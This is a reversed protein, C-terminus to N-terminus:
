RGLDWGGPGAVSDRGRAAREASREGREPRNRALEAELQSKRAELVEVDSQAAREAAAAHELIRRRSPLWGVRKEAQCTRDEVARELRWRAQALDSSVRGLELRMEGREPGSDLALPRAGSRRLAQAVRDVASVRYEAPERPAYEERDIASEEALYLFNAERGRTLATYGWERTLGPGALVYARRLTSGQAVHGTIAYGHQMTPQGHEGRAYLFGPSLLIPRSDCEIEVHNSLPDVSTVIGRDGNNVRLRNDNRRIVIHDGTAFAGGPLQIDVVSLRGAARMHERARANLADVDSRRAAIMLSDHIDGNAWWDAVLHARAREITEATRLRGHRRYLDLASEPRGERIHAVAEREWAQVQRRNERLEVGIGRQVLGRFVGGAELEPLQHHDGVLVLKGSAAEVHHLLLALQRTSVQGAEDIVLVCREPLRGGDRLRQSMAAVSTSPITSGRELERAARRAVAVGLVPLGTADWAEHAAALAFTKGSGAKGVVVAVADGGRTLHEVMERQEASLEPRAAIAAAVRADDAVGAGAARGALVREIVRQEVALHSITSYRRQEAAVPMAGGDRRRWADRELELDAGVVPVVDASALLRDAASELTRARVFAGPPMHECLRVVVDRRTVTPEKHTLGEPGVLGQFIRRWSIDPAAVERGLAAVLDEPEFGGTRARSWWESQLRGADIRPGKRRRTDLAAAEAARPGTVGRDALAREIEVRRRSFERLVRPPLGAIEAIGDRVTTWEVGLTRRMESRLVAQYVFSAARAHAYLQRGDLASWRGDPGRGLNAILTHTHLQPDGARSTSHRFTAAVLGDAREVVAGAHGRRVAAASREVYALAEKVAEDHAGRVASRVSVDGLGFLVSVSKPASFTLDFGGVRVRSRADRLESGDAPRQGALVRRLETGRVPGRLGLEAAAQGHWTGRTGGQEAYYDEIGDGVSDVVDVRGEAQDLYYRAQGAALKGISLV